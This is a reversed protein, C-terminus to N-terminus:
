LLHEYNSFEAPNSVVRANIYYDPAIKATNEANISTAYASASDLDKFESASFDKSGWGREYERLVVLHRTTTKM